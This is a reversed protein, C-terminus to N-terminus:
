GAKRLKKEAEDTWPAEAMGARSLKLRHMQRWLDSLEESPHRWDDGARIARRRRAGIRCAGCDLRAFRRPARPCLWRVDLPKKMTTTTPASTRPQAVFRALVARLVGPAIRPKSPRTLQTNRPQLRREHRVGNNSKAEVEAMFEDHAAEEPSLTGESDVM